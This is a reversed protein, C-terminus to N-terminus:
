RRRMETSVDTGADPGSVGTAQSFLFNWVDCTRPGEGSQALVRARVQDVGRLVALGPAGLRVFRMPRVPVEGYAIAQPGPTDPQVLWVRRGSFYRMLEANSERDLERAWVVQSRDIDANNYVWEDGANHGPDYRM